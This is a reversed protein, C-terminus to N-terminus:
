IKENEKIIIAITQNLNKNVLYCLRIANPFKNASEFLKTLRALIRVDNVNNREIESQVCLQMWIDIFVEPSENSLINNDLLRDINAM